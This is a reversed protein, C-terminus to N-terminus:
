TDFTFDCSKIPFIPVVFVGSRGDPVTTMSPSRISATASPTKMMAPLFTAMTFVSPARITTLSISHFLPPIQNHYNATCNYKKNYNDAAMINSLTKSVNTGTISQTEARAAPTFILIKVSTPIRKRRTIGLRTMFGKMLADYLLILHKLLDAQFDNNLLHYRQGRQLHM